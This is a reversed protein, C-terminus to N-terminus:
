KFILKKKCHRQQERLQHHMSAAAAAQVAAALSAAAATTTSNCSAVLKNDLTNQYQKHQIQHHSIPSKQHQDLDSSSAM